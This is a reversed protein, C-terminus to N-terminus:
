LREAWRLVAEVGRERDARNQLHNGLQKTMTFTAVDRDEGKEGEQISDKTWADHESVGDLNRTRVCHHLATRYCRAADEPTHLSRRARGGDHGHYSLACHLRPWSKLVHGFSMDPASSQNERCMRPMPATSSSFSLSKHHYKM